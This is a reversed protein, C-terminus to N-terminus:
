CEYYDCRGGYQSLFSRMEDQEFHIAFDMPTAGNSVTPNINAGSDILAEAVSMGNNLAAVHLPTAGDEDKANVDAGKAILMNAIDQRDGYAALHLPTKGDESQANVDAGNDILWKASEMDNEVAAVHLHSTNGAGGEPKVRANVDLQGDWAGHKRLSQETKTGTPAGNDGAAGGASQGGSIGCDNSDTGRPCFKTEDCEGDNAYKCSNDGGGSKGSGSGSGFSNAGDGPQNPCKANKTLGEPCHSHPCTVKTGNSKIQPAVQEQWMTGLRRDYLCGGYSVAYGKGFYYDVSPALATGVGANGAPGVEGLGEGRSEADPCGGQPGLTKCFRFRIRLKKNCTNRWENNAVNLEGSRAKKLSLCRKASLDHAHAYNAQPVVAVLVAFGALLTAFPTTIRSLM